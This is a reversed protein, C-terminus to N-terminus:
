CQNGYYNRYEKRANQSSFNMHVFVSVYVTYVHMGLLKCVYTQLYMYADHMYVHM